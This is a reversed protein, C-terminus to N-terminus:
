LGTALITRANKCAVNSSSLNFLASLGAFLNAFYSIEQPARGLFSVSLYTNRYFQGSQYYYEKDTTDNITIVIGGDGRGYGVNM